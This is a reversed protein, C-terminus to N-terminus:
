FFAGGTGDWNARGSGIHGTSLNLWLNDRMGSEQCKWHAPNSSISPPNPLQLLAGFYKSELVDSSAEWALVAIQRSADDRNMVDM